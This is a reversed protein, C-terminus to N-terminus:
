WPNPAKAKKPGIEGAESFSGSTFASKRMSLTRLSRTEFGCLRLLDRFERRRARRFGPSTSM